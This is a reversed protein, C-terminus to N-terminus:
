NNKDIQNYFREKSIFTENEWWDEYWSLCYKQKIYCMELWKLQFGARIPFLAFRKIYRIDGDEVPKKLNWTM